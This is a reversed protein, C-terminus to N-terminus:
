IAQKEFMAVLEKFISIIFEILVELFNKEEQSIEDVEGNTSTSTNTSTNSTDTTISTDTGIQTSTDTVTDVVTDTNTDSSIDTSTDSTTDSTSPLNPKPIPEPEPMPEPEPPLPETRRERFEVDCGLERAFWNTRAEIHECLYGIVTTNDAM